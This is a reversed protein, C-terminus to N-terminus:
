REGWKPPGKRKAEITAEGEVIEVEISGDPGITVKGPIMGAANIAEIANKIRSKSPTPAPM